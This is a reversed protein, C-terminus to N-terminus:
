HITISYMSRTIDQMEIWVAHILNKLKEKFNYEPDTQCVNTMAASIRGSSSFSMDLDKM